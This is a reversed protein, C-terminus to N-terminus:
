TTERLRQALREARNALQASTEPWRDRTLVHQVVDRPQGDIEYFGPLEQHRKLGSRDHFSLVPTNDVLTHCYMEDLGLQEFGVQYLLWSSEIAALSQEAIVWRGWEARRQEADVDYIAILGEAPEAEAGRREVVFYYDGEREFYRSLFEEQAEVNRPIRSMYRIREADGRLRVLVPADSLEIPRLEFGFGSAHINHRV